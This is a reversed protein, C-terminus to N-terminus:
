IVIQSAESVENDKIVKATYNINAILDVNTKITDETSSIGTNSKWSIEYGSEKIIRKGNVFKM